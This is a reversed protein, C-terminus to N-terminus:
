RVFGVQMRGGAVVLEHEVADALAVHDGRLYPGALADVRGAPLGRLRRPLYKGSGIWKGATLLMLEATREFVTAALVRQELPDTADRLDDLVDTIVYRRFDLEHGDVEPGGDLTESWKTRLDDLDEGGRVAVGEVLMHVIVPRHQAISRGAWQTFGMPTYAFVEFVEGEFELTLAAGIEGDTLLAEGILLLDIDSTRTREGRATSGGIVAVSAKPFHAAVFREALDIYEM